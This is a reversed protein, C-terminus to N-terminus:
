LIYKKLDKEKTEGGLKDIVFARDIVVEKGQGDAEFSIDEIPHVKKEELTVYECHYSGGVAVRDGVQVKTVDEGVQIVTGSSSYGVRRPFVAETANFESYISVRPDGVLNARETGSSVSSVALKVLVENAQPQRCDETLLEATNPKTFVINRSNM